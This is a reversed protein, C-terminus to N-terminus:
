QVKLQAVLRTQMDEIKNMREHVQVLSDRITRLIETQEEMCDDTHKVSAILRENMPIAVKEIYMAGLKYVAYMLLLVLLANFGFIRAFEVWYNPEPVPIQALWQIM